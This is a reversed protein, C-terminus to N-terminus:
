LQDDHCGPRDGAHLLRVQGQCEGEFFSKASEQDLVCCPNDVHLGMSEVMEKVVSAKKSVVKDNEDYVLYSSTGTQMIRREVSIVEGYVEPKFSNLGKNCLKVTSVQTAKTDM